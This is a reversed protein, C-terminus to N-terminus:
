YYLGRVSDDTGYGAHYNFIEKGVIRNLYDQIIVLDEELYEHDSCDDFNFAVYSEDIEYANDCSDMDGGFYDEIFAAVFKGIESDLSEAQGTLADELSEMEEETLHMGSKSTFVACNIYKPNEGRQQETEQMLEERFAEEGGNERILKNIEDNVEKTDANAAKAEEAIKRVEILM